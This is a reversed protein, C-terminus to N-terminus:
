HVYFVKCHVPMLAKQILADKTKFLKEYIERDKGISPDLKAILDTNLIYRDIEASKLDPVYVQGARHIAVRFAGQDWNDFSPDTSFRQAMRLAEPRISSARSIIWSVREHSEATYRMWYKMEEPTAAGLAILGEAALKSAMPDVNKSERIQRLLAASHDSVLGDERLTLAAYFLKRPADYSKSIQKIYSRFYPLIFDSQTPDFTTLRFFTKALEFFKDNPSHPKSFRMVSEVSLPNATKIIEKKLQELSEAYFQYNESIFSARKNGDLLGVLYTYITSKQLLTVRRDTLFPTLKKTIDDLSEPLKIVNPNRIIVQNDSTIFVDAKLEEAVRDHERAIISGMGAQHSFKKEIQPALNRFDFIRIPKENESEILSIPLLQGTVSTISHESWGFTPDAYVGKGRAANNYESVRLLQKEQLVQTATAADMRSAHFLMGLTAYEQMFELHSLQRPTQYAWANLTFLAAILYYQTRM